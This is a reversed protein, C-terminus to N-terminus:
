SFYKEQIQNRAELCLENEESDLKEMDECTQIRFNYSVKNEGRNGATSFFSLFVYMTINYVIHRM